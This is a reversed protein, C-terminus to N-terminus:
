AVSVCIWWFFCFLFFLVFCKTETLGRVVPQQKAFHNCYNYVMVVIFLFHLSIEWCGGRGWVCMYIYICVCACAHVIAGACGSRLEMWSQVIVTRPFLPCSRHNWTIQLCVKCLSNWQKDAAVSLQQDILWILIIVNLGSITLVSVRQAFLLFVACVLRWFTSVFVNM